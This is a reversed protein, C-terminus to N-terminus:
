IEDWDVSPSRLGWEVFYAAIKAVAELPLCYRAPVPTPTNAAFFEVFGQKKKAAAGRAILYPPNGDARSFQACGVDDGIGVLLNYGNNGVLECFFPPRDRLSEILTLVEAATTRMAHSRNAPDQRDFFQVIM